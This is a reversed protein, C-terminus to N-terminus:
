DGIEYGFLLLYLLVLWGLGVLLLRRPVAFELHSEFSGGGSTGVGSLVPGVSLELGLDFEGVGEVFGFVLAVVFEGDFNALGVVYALLEM